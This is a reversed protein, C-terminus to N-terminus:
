FSFNINLHCRDLVQGANRFKSAMAGEVAADIDASEFVIFPANGGLELGMRKVTGACQSYLAKGVLTSGPRPSHYVACKVPGQQVKCKYPM